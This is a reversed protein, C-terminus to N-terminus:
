PLDENNISNLIDRICFLKCSKQTFLFPLICSIMEFHELSYICLFVSNFCFPNILNPFKSDHKSLPINLYTEPTCINEM